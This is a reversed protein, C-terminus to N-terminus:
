AAAELHSMGLSRVGTEGLCRRAEGQCVWRGGFTEAQGVGACAPGEQKPRRPEGVRNPCGRVGGPPPPPPKNSRMREFRALSHSLIV